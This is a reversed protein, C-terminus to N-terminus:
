LKAQTTYSISAPLGGKVPPLVRAMMLRWTVSDGRGNRATRGSTEGASSSASERESALFGACRKAVIGWNRAASSLPEAATGRWEGDRVREMATSGNTFVLAS